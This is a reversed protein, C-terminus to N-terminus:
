TGSSERRTPETEHLYRTFTDKPRELGNEALVRSAMGRHNSGHTLLHLLIEEVTLQGFGGDIFRFTVNRKLEDASVSQTFDVLWSDHENITRRLESLSPTEVTNDGSYKEPEDLIRSIFLSDVVTTHNLIRVFFTADSEPLQSFQKEGLELLEDNAWKKYQFVSAFQM